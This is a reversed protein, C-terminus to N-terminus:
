KVSISLPQKWAEDSEKRAKEFAKQSDVVEAGDANAIRSAHAQLPHKPAPKRDFEERIHDFRADIYDQSKDAGDFNSNRTKIAAIKLERDSLKDADKVGLSDAVKLLDMRARALKNVKEADASDTVKKELTTVKEKLSDTTAQSKDLKTKLDALKSEADEAKAKMKDGDEKMSAMHAELAAKLEPSVEYEKGGIMIKVMTNKREELQDTVHIFMRDCDASDMHVRVAPGARGRDVLALHNYRINRQIFDYQQGDYVGSKEELDCTYGCSLQQVEKQEVAKIAADEVITLDTELYTDAVKKVTDSTYGAMVAKANFPTVFEKPHKLTVPIAKLSEMSDEAFVEEPLRLQGIVRGDETRYKFVGVRTAFGPVKLFGQQTRRPGKLESRDLIIARAM